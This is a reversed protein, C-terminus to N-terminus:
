VEPVVARGFPTWSVWRLRHSFAVTNPSCAPILSRSTYRCVSGINWAFPQPIGKPMVPTPPRCTTSRWTSPM